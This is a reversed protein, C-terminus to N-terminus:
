EINDTRKLKKLTYIEYDYLEIAKFSMTRQM